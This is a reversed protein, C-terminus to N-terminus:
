GNSIAVHQAVGAALTEFMRQQGFSQAFGLRTMTALVEPRVCALRMTVGRGALHADLHKLADLGSSDVSLLSSLDFVQIPELPLKPDLLHELRSVAGFFLVGTLRRVEIGDLSKGQGSHAPAEGVSADGVSAEEVELVGLRELETRDVVEVRTIQSMRYIFVACAMVLGVEVAVTIDVVITLVFTSLLTARYALSYAKMEKFARWEGMNYAVVLAVAALAVLPIQEALPAAGLVIALLVLAHVMGSVPTKAGSRINTVTRAVTGTACFGGFLPSVINAAGQAMLEQNPDHREKALGDAVRACLLSEVAGLLAITLIPAFLFQVTSWNFDPLSPAPLGRPIEGFASGVTEVPLGLVAVLLTSGVIAMLTGPLRSVIRGVMTPQPNYSKPWLLIVALCALGLGFTLPDATPLAQALAQMKSFFEAPLAPGDLGLFAKIQSLAILVAIGSTFGMVVSIPVLRILNGMRLLGMLIMLLGACATAILLNPIGYREVIAYVVVIFAGAPGGIQVSSGGLASILFGAIIATILGTEPPLGSAIAFALALPLAVFAVTLGASADAVFTQRNYDALHDLLKPRFHPRWHPQFPLWGFTRSLSKSLSRTIAAMGHDRTRVAVLM